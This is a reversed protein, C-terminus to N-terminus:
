QSFPQNKNPQKKTFTIMMLMKQQSKVDLSFISWALHNSCDTPMKFTALKHAGTTATLRTKLAQQGM